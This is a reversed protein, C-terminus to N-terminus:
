LQLWSDWDGRLEDGLMSLVYENSELYLKSKSDQLVDFTKTQMFFKVANESSMQFSKSIVEVVHTVINKKCYEIDEKALEM